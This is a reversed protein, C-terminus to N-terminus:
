PWHVGLDLGAGMTLPPSTWVGFGDLAVTWRTLTALGEVRLAFFLRSGIPSSLGGRVGAQVLPASDSSPVDIDHGRVRAIGAKTLLCGSWPPVVGCGALSALVLQQSYGAGDARRTVTPVGVEGGFELSFRRRTIVGFLRGFGVLGSSMGHAVSVGGGVGFEWPSQPGAESRPLASQRSPSLRTSNLGKNDVRAPSPTTSAAPPATFAPEAPAAEPPAPAADGSVSAGPMAALLHIQVALAIAMTRALEGCETTRAACTQDGAWEGSPGRWEIHGSVGGESAEISVLVRSPAQKRFPAYGLRKAVINQFQIADPCARPAVYELSVELADDVQAARAAAPAFALAVGPVVAWVGLVARRVGSLLPRGM